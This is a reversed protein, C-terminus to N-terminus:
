SLGMDIDAYKGVKQFHFSPCELQPGRLLGFNHPPMGGSNTKFILHLKIQKQTIKCLFKKLM